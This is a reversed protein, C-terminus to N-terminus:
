SKRGHDQFGIKVRKDKIGKANKEKMVIFVSRRIMWQSGEELSATFMLTAESGKVNVAECRWQVPDPGQAYVKGPQWLCLLFLTNM